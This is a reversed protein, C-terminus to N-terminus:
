GGAELRRAPEDPFDVWGIDASEFGIKKVVFAEKFVDGEAVNFIEVSDSFVAILRDRPGFSGLFKFVPEPPQPKAAQQPRKPRSKPNKNAPKPPPPPPPPPPKAVEKPRFRFPDRGPQFEGPKQELDELRLDVIDPGTDAGGRLALARAQGARRGGGGSGSGTIKLATRVGVAVLVLVLVVLVQKQRAETM